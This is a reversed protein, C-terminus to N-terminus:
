FGINAGFCIRGGTYNSINSYMGIESRFNIIWVKWFDAGIGAYFSLNKIATDGLYLGGGLAMYFHPSLDKISVVGFIRGQFLGIEYGPGGIRFDNPSYAEGLGIYLHSYRAEVRVSNEGTSSYVPASLILLMVFLLLFKM